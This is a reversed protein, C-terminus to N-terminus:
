PFLALIEAKKAEWALIEAAPVGPVSDPIIVMSVTLQAATTDGRKVHAVVTDYANGFAAKGGDSFNSYASKLARLLVNKPSNISARYAERNM